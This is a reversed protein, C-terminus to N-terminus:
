FWSSEFANLYKSNKGLRFPLANLIQNAIDTHEVEYKIELITAKDEMPQNALKYNHILRYHIESDITARIQKHFSRFYSRKYHVSVVPILNSHLLKEHASMQTLDTNLNFDSLQHYNKYGITNRKIKQELIPNKIHNLDEGYWRIRYKSRNSVGSINDQVNSFSADDYYISNVQRDLFQKSFGYALCELAHTVEDVNGTSIRYKREFRM